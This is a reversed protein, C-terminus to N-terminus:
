FGTGVCDGEGTFVNQECHYGSGGPDTIPQGNEDEAPRQGGGGGSTTADGTAGDQTSHGGSGGTLGGGPEGPIAGGQGGQCSGTNYGTGPDETVDCMGGGGGVHGETHNAFAPLAMALMMAAMVLAATVLLMIRRM